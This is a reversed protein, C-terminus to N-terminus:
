TEGLIKSIQSDALTSGKSLVFSEHAEDMDSYKAKMNMKDKLKNFYYELDKSIHVLIM